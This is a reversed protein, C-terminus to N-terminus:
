SLIFARNMEIILDASAAPFGGWRM